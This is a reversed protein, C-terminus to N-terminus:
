PQPARLPQPAAVRGTAEETVIRQIHEWWSFDPTALRRARIGSMASALIAREQARLEEYGAGGVVLAPAFYRFPPFGYADDTNAILEDVLGEPAIDSMGFAKREIVFLTDVRVTSTAQCPVLRQVQYKPPTVVRQTFANLSMIPLNMEGMRAGVGRGAKSHVRSQVRLKRWEARTLEGADVARLTHHSITLPKPYSLAVGNADLITMDDSLFRGGGERLLRLVTGTKGTDTLASLMIGRGGIELCASHLLMYGRSVLVFRLLAEVVNTYLVHPSRVLMPGAVIRITNGMEVHFDSGRRGLHEEYSVAPPSVYQTVRPRRRATGSGFWGQDIEIDAAFDQDTRFSELEALRVASAIRVIGHVDYRHVTPRGLRHVTPAAGDRLDVVLDVPGSRAPAAQPIDNSTRIGARDVLDTMTKRRNFLYRDSIAFRVAFAAILTAINATLYHLHVSDTLWALLPLRLLLVANNVLAFGLLRAAAGLQKSGRYVLRDTLIFNWLTSAQTSLAASLLLPLGLLQVCLWLAVTNVAIGSIGVAAFGAMRAVRETHVGFLTAFRLGILRRGFLIGERLSAKSEGSHREGFSFPLESVRLRPSRALVEMLIKFGNPRLADRDIRGLRVAFMGSMPDSCSRMRRPFMMKTATTSSRSVLHRAAGSLGSSDGTGV